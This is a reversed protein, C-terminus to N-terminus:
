KVHIPRSSVHNCRHRISRRCHHNRRRRYLRRRHHRLRVRLVRYDRPKTALKRRRVRYDIRQTSM